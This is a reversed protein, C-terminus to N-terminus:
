KVTFSFTGTTRHGDDSAVARWEVKYAGPGLPHQPTIDLKRASMPDLKASSPMAAGMASVVAGSLKGAIEESFVLDLHEVPGAVVSDAAPMSGVLKAHAQASVALVATLALALGIRMAVKM